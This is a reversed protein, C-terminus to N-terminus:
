SFISALPQEFPLKNSKEVGGTSQKSTSDVAAPYLNFGM